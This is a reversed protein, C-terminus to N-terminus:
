FYEEWQQSDITNSSVKEQRNQKLRNFLKWYETPNTGRSQQLKVLISDKFEQEAKKCEKKFIRKTKYYDERIERNQPYREYLTKCYLM